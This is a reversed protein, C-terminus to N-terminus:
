KGYLNGCNARYLLAATRFDIKENKEILVKMLPRMPHDETLIVSAWFSAFNISDDLNVLLDRADKPRRRRTSRAVAVNTSVENKM